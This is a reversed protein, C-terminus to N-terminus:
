AHPEHVTFNANVKEILNCTSTGSHQRQDSHNPKGRSINQALAAITAEKKM